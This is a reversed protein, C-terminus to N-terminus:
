AAEKTRWFSIRERLLIITLCDLRIERAQNMNEEEKKTEQVRGKEIYRSTEFNRLLIWYPCAGGTGRL